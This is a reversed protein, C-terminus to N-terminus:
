RLEVRELHLISVRAVTLRFYRAEVPAFEAKWLEFWYSQRAVERFTSGDLSVSAVLPVARDQQADRRNQVLLSHVSRVRGLDYQVHPELQEHTHFAIRTAFGGCQGRKPECRAWESSLVPSVGRLLNARERYWVIAASAVLIAATVLAVRLSARATLWRFVRRRREARLARRVRRAKARLSEHASGAEAGLRSLSEDLLHHASRVSSRTPTPSTALVGESAALLELARETADASM